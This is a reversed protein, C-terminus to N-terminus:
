SMWFFRLAAFINELNNFDLCGLESLRFNGSENWIDLSIRLLVREGSSRGRVLAQPSIKLCPELPNFIEDVLWPYNKLVLTIAQLRQQDDKCANKWNPM